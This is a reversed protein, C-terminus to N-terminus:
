LGSLLEWVSALFNITDFGTFVHAAVLLAVILVGFKKVADIVDKAIDAAVKAGGVTIAILIGAQTVPSNIASEYLGWALSGFNIFSVDGGTKWYAVVIAALMIVGVQGAIGDLYDKIREFM